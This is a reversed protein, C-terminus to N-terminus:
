KKRYDKLKLEREGFDLSGRYIKHQLIQQMFREKKEIKVLKNALCVKANKNYLVNMVRASYHSSDYVNFSRYLYNVNYVSCTFNEHM